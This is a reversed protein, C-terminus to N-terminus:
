LEGHYMRRRKRETEEYEARRELWVALIGLLAVAGLAINMVTWDM